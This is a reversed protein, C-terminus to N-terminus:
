RTMSLFESPDPYLEYNPINIGTNTKYDLEVRVIEGTQNEGDADRWGDTGVVFRCKPNSKSIPVRGLENFLYDEYTNLNSGNYGAPYTDCNWSFGIVISGDDNRFLGNDEDALIREMAKAIQEAAEVDAVRRCKRIYKILAPALAGALIAMIAIVIILEVLSFGKNKNKKVADTQINM